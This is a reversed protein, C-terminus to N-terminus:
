QEHSWFPLGPASFIAIDCIFGKSEPVFADFVIETREPIAELYSFCDRWIMGGAPIRPSIKTYPTRRAPTFINARYVSDRQNLGTVYFFFGHSEDTNLRARQTIEHLDFKLQNAQLVPTATKYLRLAALDSSSYQGAFDPPLQIDVFELTESECVSNLLKHDPQDLAQRLSFIKQPTTYWAGFCFLIILSFCLIELFLCFKRITRKNKQNIFM